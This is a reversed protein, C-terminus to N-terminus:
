GQWGLAQYIRQWRESMGETFLLPEFGLKLYTATRRSRPVSSISQLVQAATSVDGLAVSVPRESPIRQCIQRLVSPSVAGLSGRSPEKADVIDAGGALAIRAEAATRVSVLLQM